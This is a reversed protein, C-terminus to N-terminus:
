LDGLRVQFSRGGLGLLCFPCVVDMGRQAPRLFRDEWEERVRSEIEDQAPTEPMIGPTLPIYSPSIQDLWAACDATTLRSPIQISARRYLAELQVPSLKEFEEGMTTNSNVEDGEVDVEVVDWWEDDNRMWPEDGRLPPLLTKDGVTEISALKMAISVEGEAGVPPVMPLQGSPYLLPLARGFVKWAHEKGSALWKTRYKSLTASLGATLLEYEIHAITTAPNPSSLFPPPPMDSRKVRVLSKRVPLPPKPLRKESVQAAARNRERQQDYGEEDTHDDDERVLAPDWAPNPVTPDAWEGERTWFYYHPVDCGPFRIFFLDELTHQGGQQRGGMSLKEMDFDLCAPLYCVALPRYESAELVEAFKKAKNKHRQEHRKERSVKESDGLPKVRLLKRNELYWKNYVEPLKKAENHPPLAFFMRANWGQVQTRDTWASAREITTKRLVGELIGNRAANRTQQSLIPVYDPDVGPPYTQGPLFLKEKSKTTHVKLPVYTVNCPVPQPYIDEGVEDIPSSPAVPAPMTAHPWEFLRLKCEPVTPPNTSHFTTETSTSDWSEESLAQGVPGHGADSDRGLLENHMQKLEEEDPTDDSVSEDRDRRAQKEIRRRHKAAEVKLRKDNDRQKERALQRQKNEREVIANREARKKEQDNDALARAMAVKKMDKIYVGREICETKLQKYDWEDFITNTKHEDKVRHTGGRRHVAAQPAMKRSQPAKGKPM